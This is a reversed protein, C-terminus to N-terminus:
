TRLNWHNFMRSVQGSAFITIGFIALALKQGKASNSIRGFPTEVVACSSTDAEHGAILQHKIKLAGM